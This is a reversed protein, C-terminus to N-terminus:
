ILETLLKVKDCVQKYEPINESLYRIINLREQITISGFCTVYENGALANSSLNSVFNSFPRSNLQHLNTANPLLAYVMTKLGYQDIFTGIYETIKASNEHHALIEAITSIRMCKDTFEKHKRLFDNHVNKVTQATSQARGASTDDIKHSSSSPSPNGHKLNHFKTEFSKVIDITIKNNVLRGILDKKKGSKTCHYRECLARIIDITKSSLYSEVDAM